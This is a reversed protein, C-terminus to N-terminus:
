RPVLGAMRLAFGTGSLGAPVNLRPLAYPHRVRRPLWGGGVHLAARYGVAAAAREAAASSIGYPYALWPIVNPFRESLWKLPQKLEWELDQAALQALNPHSWTHSALTIGAATAARDLEAQGAATAHQPPTQLMLGESKAWQRIADDRGHFEQLARRRVSGQVTGAKPDALADWWFSPGDVFAPAVFITAPLGREVVEAVGVTVAGRYADDFTIAARPRRGGRSGDLLAPLPVVDHSERLLDLQHAFSCRPLHLSRDGGAASGDPVINHYALVVSRGRTVARAVSAPGGRLLLVETARRLTRRM